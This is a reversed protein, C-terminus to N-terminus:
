RSANKGDTTISLAGAKNASLLGRSILGRITPDDPSYRVGVPFEAARYAPKLRVFALLVQREAPTVTPEQPLLPALFLARGHDDIAETNPQKCLRAICVIAAVRAANPPLIESVRFVEIPSKTMESLPITRTVTGDPHSTDEACIACVEYAVVKRGAKRTRLQVLSITKM